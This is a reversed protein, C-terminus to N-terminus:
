SRLHKLFSPYIMLGLLGILSILGLLSILKILGLLNILGVLVRWKINM